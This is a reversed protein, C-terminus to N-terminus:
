YKLICVLMCCIGSNALCLIRIYMIQALLGTKPSIQRLGLPVEKNLTAKTLAVGYGVCDVDGCVFKLENYGNWAMSVLTWASLEQFLLFVITFWLYWFSYARCLRIVLPVCWILLMPLVLSKISKDGHMPPLLEISEGPWTWRITPKSYTLHNASPNGSLGQYIPKHIVWMRIEFAEDYKVWLHM